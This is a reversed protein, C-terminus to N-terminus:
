DTTHSLTERTKQRTEAPRQRMASQTKSHTTEGRANVPQATTRTARWSSTPRTTSREERRRETVRVRRVRAKRPLDKLLDQGEQQRRVGNNRWPQSREYLLSQMADTRTSGPKHLERLKGKSAVMLSGM